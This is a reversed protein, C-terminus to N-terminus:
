ERNRNRLMYIFKEARSEAAGQQARSLNNRILSINERTTPDDYLNESILFYYYATYYSPECGYGNAHMLGLYAASYAHGNEMAKTFWQMAEEYQKLEFHVLGLNFQSLTHNHRAAKSFWEVAAQHDQITGMGKEYALGLYYYANDMNFVAARELLRIAEGYDREVTNGEQYMRALAIMADPNNSDAAARILSIGQEEDKPVAEGALYIRGLMQACIVASVLAYGRFHHALM